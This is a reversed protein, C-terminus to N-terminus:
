RKRRRKWDVPGLPARSTRPDFRGFGNGPELISEGKAVVLHLCRSQDLCVSRRPCIACPDGKEVLWVQAWVTHRRELARDVLKQALKELSQEHALELLAQAAFNTDFHSESAPEM